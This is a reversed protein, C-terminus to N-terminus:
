KENNSDNEKPKKAVGVMAPRLLRDQIVYGSQMVQIVTGPEGESTEEEFMAQHFKPDFNEGMPNIKNIGHAISRAVKNATLCEKFSDPAILINM